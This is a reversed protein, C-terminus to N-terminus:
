APWVPWGSASSNVKHLCALRVICQCLGLSLLAGIFHPEVHERLVGALVGVHRGLWWVWM